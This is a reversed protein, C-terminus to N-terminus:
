TPPISAWGSSYWRLTVSKKSRASRAAECHDVNRTGSSAVARRTRWLGRAEPPSSTRRSRPCPRDARRSKRERQRRRAGARTQGTPGTPSQRRALDTPRLELPRAPPHRQHQGPLDTAGTIAMDLHRTRTAPGALWRPNDGPPPLPGVTRAKEVGTQGPPGGQEPPVYSLTHDLDMRRTGGAAYPFVDVPQRLRLHERIIDPIEYSDVPPPVDNLDIVPKLLIQTTEGVLDRLRTLLVPGIDEVRAIGRGASLAAESLHIYVIARPRARAPDFPPPVIPLSRDPSTSGEVPEPCVDDVDDPAPGAAPEPCANSM